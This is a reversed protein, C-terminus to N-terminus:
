FSGNIYITKGFSTRYNKGKDGDRCCVVSQIETPAYRAVNEKSALKKHFDKNVM